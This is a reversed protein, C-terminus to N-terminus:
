FVLSLPNGGLDLPIIHHLFPSKYYFNSIFKSGTKFRSGIAEFYTEWGGLSGSSMAKTKRMPPFRNLETSTTEQKEQFTREIALQKPTGTTSRVILKPSFGLYKKNTGFITGLSCSFLGVCDWYDWYLLIPSKPNELNKKTSCNSSLLAFMWLVLTFVLDHANSHNLHMVCLGYDLLFCLVSNWGRNALM